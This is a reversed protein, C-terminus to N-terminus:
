GSSCQRPGCSRIWVFCFMHQAEFSACQRQSLSGCVLALAALNSIRYKPWSCPGDSDLVLHQSWGCRERAALKRARPEDLMKSVTPM